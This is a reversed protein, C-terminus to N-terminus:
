QLPETFSLFGCHTLYCCRSSDRCNLQRCVVFLHVDNKIERTACKERRFNHKLRFVQWAEFKKCGGGHAGSDKQAINHPRFEELEKRTYLRPLPFLSTMKVQQNVAQVASHPLKNNYRALLSLSRSLTLECRGTIYKYIGDAVIM